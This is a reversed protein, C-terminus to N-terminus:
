LGFSIFCALLACFFALITMTLGLVNGLFSGVNRLAEITLIACQKSTIQRRKLKDLLELVKRPVHKTLM